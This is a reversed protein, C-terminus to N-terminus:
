SSHHWWSPWRRFTGDPYGVPWPVARSLWPLASLPAMGEAPTGGAGRPVLRLPQAALHCQPRPVQGQVRRQEERCWSGPEPAAAGHGLRPPKDLSRPAQKGLLPSQTHAPVEAPPILVRMAGTLANRRRIVAKLCLPSGTEGARSLGTPDWHQDLLLFSIFGVWMLVSWTCGAGIDPWM